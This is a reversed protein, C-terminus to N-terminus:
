SSPPSCTSAWACVNFGDTDSDPASPDAIVSGSSNVLQIEQSANLNASAGNVTAHDFAPKTLNPLAAIGGGTGIVLPTEEIWEATLQTSSYPVTTTYSQGTTVDKIMITWVDANGAVTSISAAMRDGPHPTISTITISPAPILEYWASYSAKGSSSVDQETGTQILTSDTVTCGSDVCGGGIGVWDASDESQGKVHQTAKPVTWYGSISHFLEGGLELSGQNYGSWNNSQNTNVKFPHILQGHATIATSSRAVAGSAAFGGVLVAVTLFGSLRLLRRTTASSASLRRM